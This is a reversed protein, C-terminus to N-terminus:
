TANLDQIGCGLTQLYISLVTKRNSELINSTSLGNVFGQAITAYEGRIADAQAAFNAATAAPEVAFLTNSAQYIAASDQETEASELEALKAEVAQANSQMQLFSQSLGHNISASYNHIAKTAAEATFYAGVKGEAGLSKFNDVDQDLGNLSPYKHLREYLRRQSEWQLMPGYQGQVLEWGCWDSGTFFGFIPKKTADSLARAKALDTHWSLGGEHGTAPQATCSLQTSLLFLSLFIFSKM